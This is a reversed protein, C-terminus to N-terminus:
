IRFVNFYNENDYVSLEAFHELLEIPKFYSKYKQLDLSSVSYNSFFHDSIDTSNLFMLRSM